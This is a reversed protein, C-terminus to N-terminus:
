SVSHKDILRQLKTIQRKHYLLKKQLGAAGYRLGDMRVGAVVAKLVVRAAELQVFVAPNAHRFYKFCCPGIVVARDDGNRVNFCEGTEHRCITCKTQRAADSYYQGKFTFLEPDGHRKAFTQQNMDQGLPADAM